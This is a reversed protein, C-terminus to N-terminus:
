NLILTKKKRKNKKKEHFVAKEINEKIRESPIFLINLKNSDARKYSKDYLSM